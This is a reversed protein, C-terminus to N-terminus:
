PWGQDQRDINTGNELQLHTQFFLLFLFLLLLLLLVLFMLVSAGTTITATALLLAAPPPSCTSAPGGGHSMSENMRQITVSQAKHPSSGPVPTEPTLVRM